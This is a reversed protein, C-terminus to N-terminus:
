ECQKCIHKMKKRANKWILSDWNSGKLEQAYEGIELELNKMFRTANITRKDRGLLGREKRNIKWGGTTEAQHLLGCRVHKYFAQHQGRLAEFHQSRDFFYCFALASKNNSNLWGQRFSELAEIMLCSIAMMGFGHKTDSNSFPIIYREKFREVLFDAVGEKNQQQEMERYKKVSTSSSLKTVDTM